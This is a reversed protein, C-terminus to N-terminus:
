NIFFERVVSYDGQNGAEDFARVRWFYTGVQLISSTEYSEDTTTEDELITNFNPDSSIEILSSVPSQVTGVDQPNSWTFTIPALVTAQDNPSVLSPVPPPTADVKFTKTFIATTNGNPFIASVGWVYEGTELSLGQITLSTTTINNESHVISGTGFNTGERLSFEYTAANPVASWTFPGEFSDNYFDNSNPATLNIESQGGQITDATIVFPGAPLSEFGNNLAILTYEYMGSELLLNLTTKTVTTDYTVSVPNEFEPTRIQLRYQKAGEMKEWSFTAFEPVIAGDQPLIIVPTEESIDTEIIDNCATFIILIVTISSTLILKM